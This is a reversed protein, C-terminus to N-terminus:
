SCPDACGVPRKRAMKRVCDRIATQVQSIQIDHGANPAPFCTTKMDMRAALCADWRAKMATLAECGNIDTCSTPPTPGKCNNHVVLDLALCVNVDCVMEPNGEVCQAQAGNAMVLGAATLAATLMLTRFRAM